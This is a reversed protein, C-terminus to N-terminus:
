VALDSKQELESTPTTHAQMELGALANELAIREAQPLNPDAKAICALVRFRMLADIVAPGADPASSTSQVATGDM